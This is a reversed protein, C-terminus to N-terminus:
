FVGGASIMASFTQLAHPLSFLYDFSLPVTLEFPGRRWALEACVTIGFESESTNFPKENLDFSSGFFFTASSLGCGARARFLNGPLVDSVAIFSERLALLTNADPARAVIKGADFSSRFFLRRVPTPLDVTLGAFPYPNWYHNFYSTCTRWGCGARIGIVDISSSDRIETCESPMSILQVLFALFIWAQNARRKV